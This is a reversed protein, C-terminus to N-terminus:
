EASYRDSDWLMASLQEDAKVEEQTVLMFATEEFVPNLDGLIIRTSYLPKGFQLFFTLGSSHSELPYHHNGQRLCPRHLSRIKWQSRSCVLRRRIPNQYRIRWTGQYRFAADGSSM